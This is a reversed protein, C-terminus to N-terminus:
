ARGWRARGRGLNWFLIQWVGFAATLGCQVALFNGFAASPGSGPGWARRADAAGFAWWGAIALLIPHLIFLCAHLWSEAGACHRAHVWEDKTVCLCSLISATAYALLATRSPPAFLAVAYCAAALFSDVPHGWREWAPLGRRIHFGEDALILAGQLAFPLAGLPWLWSGDPMAPM